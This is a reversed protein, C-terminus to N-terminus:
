LFVLVTVAAPRPSFTGKSANEAIGLREAIQAHRYGYVDFLVLVTRMQDPLM